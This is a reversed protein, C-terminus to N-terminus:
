QPAHPAERTVPSLAQHTAATAEPLQFPQLWVAEPYVPSFSTSSAGTPQSRHYESTAEDGSARRHPRDLRFDPFFGPSSLARTGLDLAIDVPAIQRDVTRPDRRLQLLDRPVAADAAPGPRNRPRRHSSRGVNLHRVDVLDHFKRPMEPHQDSRVALM